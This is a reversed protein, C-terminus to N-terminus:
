EEIRELEFVVPNAPDPCCVTAKGEPMGWAFFNGGFRLVTLFPFISQFAWSCFREPVREGKVEWTDGPKFGLPCVGRELIKQVKIQIKASKAKGDQVM